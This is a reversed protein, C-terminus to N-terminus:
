LPLDIALAGAGTLLLSLCIVTLLVVASDSLIVVSPHRHNLWLGKLNGATALLAAIQTYFGFLLLVGLITHFTISAVYWWSNRGVIPLRLQKTESRRHYQQYAIYFLAFAAAIRLLTPAFFSFVLLDPFPNLMNNALPTQYKRSPSLCKSCVPTNRAAAPGGCCSFDRSYQWM